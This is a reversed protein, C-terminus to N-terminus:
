LQVCEYGVDPLLPNAELGALYDEWDNTLSKYFNTYEEKTVEEPKKMWIPKNKNLEEM